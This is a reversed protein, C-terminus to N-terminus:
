DQYLHSDDLAVWVFGVVLSILLVVVYPWKAKM